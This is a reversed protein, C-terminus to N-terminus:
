SAPTTLRTETLRRRHRVGAGPLDGRRGLPHSGCPPPRGLQDRDPKGHARMDARRRRAAGLPRPKRAMDAIDDINLSNIGVFAVGAAVLRECSEATLFPNDSFYEHRHGLPTFFGHPCAVSQWPPRRAPLADPGIARGADTADAVVVPLNALSELPLGALDLGARYRHRPSDVYTGTNGACICPRSSFSRSATM